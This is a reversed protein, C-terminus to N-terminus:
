VKGGDHIQEVIFNHGKLDTLSVVVGQDKLRHFLRDLFSLIHGSGDEM